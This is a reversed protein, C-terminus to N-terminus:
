LLNAFIGAVIISLTTVSALGAVVFRPMIKGLIYEKEEETEAVALAIENSILFTSWTRFEYVKYGNAVLSAWPQKLTLVKM